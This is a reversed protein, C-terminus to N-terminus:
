QGEMRGVLALLYDRGYALREELQDLFPIAEYADPDPLEGTHIRQQCDWALRVFEALEQRSLDAQEAHWSPEFIAVDFLFKHDEISLPLDPTHEGLIPLIQEWDLIGQGPPRGQRRIGQDCFYVIADKTHTLHTYPAARRAAEVPDEGFVLVNATDLCIGAVEPGVSEAIRVLEFTTTEGHTELNIRSSHARLCPTLEGLMQTSDALHQEWPVDDEYRTQPGGLSTHLEHWGCVAAREIQEQITQLRQDPTGAGLYPNPSAVSIHTYLGLSDAYSRIEKLKGLDSGLGGFQIGALGRDRTYDLMQFPDMNLAHITYSDLGVQM